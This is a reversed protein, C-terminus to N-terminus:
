VSLIDVLSSLPKEKKPARNSGENAHAMASPRQSGMERTLNVVVHMCIYIYIYMYMYIYIYMYTYMYICIYIYMCTYIYVYLIYIYLLM